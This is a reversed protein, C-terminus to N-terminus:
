DSEQTMKGELRRDENSTPAPADQNETEPETEDVRASLVRQDAELLALDGNELSERDKNPLKPFSSVIGAVWQDEFLILGIAFVFAVTGVVLLLISAIQIRGSLQESWKKYEPTAKDSTWEQTEPEPNAIVFPPPAIDLLFFFVAM